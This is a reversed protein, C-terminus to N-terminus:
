SPQVLSDLDEISATRQNYMAQLVLAPDVYQGSYKLGWHLHPGTTRGTMGIRGIRTGAPIEQGLWLQIGGNRDMLYTGQESSAVYGSLHCYIHEWEGSKVWIMTGCATNDSLKTVKGGWWNRIYSGLPAAIDIGRHFQRQGSVPSSRYGFGSTYSQFNEVPFSAQKWTNSAQLSEGAIAVPNTTRHPVSNLGLVLSFTVVALAISKLWHHRWILFSRQNLM